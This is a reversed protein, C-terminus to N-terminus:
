YGSRTRTRPNIAHQRVEAVVTALAHPDHAFRGLFLGDASEKLGTFTGPGAAGGYIVRVAPATRLAHERLRGCVEAAHGAPAPEAAGIAWVPEYALVLPHGGALVPSDAALHDFEEICIEAAARPTRHELEGVCYLPTLGAQIVQRTKALVTAQDEAFLRRREAHGVEVYRCGLEALVEASVEGTQAGAESSACDQAGWAIATDALTQATSELVPFSPLPAVEVPGPDGLLDVVSRVWSRTRAASLYMKLSVAVLPQDSM